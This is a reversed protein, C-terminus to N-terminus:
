VHAGKNGLGILYVGMNVLKTSSHDLRASTLERSDAHRREVGWNMRNRTEIM